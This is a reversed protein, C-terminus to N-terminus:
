RAPRLKTFFFNRKEKFIKISTLTYQKEEKHSFDLMFELEQKIFSQQIVWPLEEQKLRPQEQKLTEHQILFKASLPWLYISIFSKLSFVNKTDQILCNRLYSVLLLFFVFLFSFFIFHVLFSTFPRLPARVVVGLQPHKFNKTGSQLLSIFVETTLLQSNWLVRAPDGAGVCHSRRGRRAETTVALHHVSVGM